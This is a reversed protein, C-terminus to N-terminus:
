QLVEMMFCELVMLFQNPDFFISIAGTDLQDTGASFELQKM